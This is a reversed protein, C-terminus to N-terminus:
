QNYGKQDIKTQWPEFNSRKDRPVWLPHGELSNHRIEIWNPVLKRQYNEWIHYTLDEISLHLYEMADPFDKEIIENYITSEYVYTQERIFPNRKTYGQIEKVDKYMFVVLTDQLLDAIRHLHASNSPAFMAFQDNIHNKHFWRIGMEPIDYNELRWPHEARSHPLGFDTSIVETIIKTGSGHPGTILIKKFNSIIPKLTNYDGQGESINM